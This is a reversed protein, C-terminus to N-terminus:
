AFWGGPEGLSRSEPRSQPQREQGQGLWASGHERRAAAPQTRPGSALRPCSLMRLPQLHLHGRKPGRQNDVGGSGAAPASGSAESSGGEGCYCSSCRCLRCRRRGKRWRTSLRRCSPPRRQGPQWSNHPPSTDGGATHLAGTDAWDRPLQLRGWLRSDDPSGVQGAPLCQTLLPHVSRLLKPGLWCGGDLIQWKLFCSPALGRIALYSNM